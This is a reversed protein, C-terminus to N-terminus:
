LEEGVCKRERGRGQRGSEGRREEGRKSMYAM